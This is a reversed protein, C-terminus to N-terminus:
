NQDATTADSSNCSRDRRCSIPRLCEQNLPSRKEAPGRGTRRHAQNHNRRAFKNAKRALEKGAQRAFLASAKAVDNGQRKYVDSAASSSSLTSRPPRRIM